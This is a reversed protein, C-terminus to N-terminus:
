KVKVVKVEYERGGYYKLHIERGGITTSGKFVVRYEVYTREGEPDDSNLLGNARLFLYKSFTIQIDHDAIYKQYQAWLMMDNKSGDIVSYPELVFGDKSPNYSGTLMRIKREIPNLGTKDYDGMNKIITSTAKLEDGHKRQKPNYGGDVVRKQLSQARHLGFLIEGIIKTQRKQTPEIAKKKGNEEQYITGLKKAEERLAALAEGMTAKGTYTMAEFAINEYNFKNLQGLVQTEGAYRLLTRLALIAGKATSTMRTNKATSSMFLAKMENSKMSYGEALLKAQKVALKIEGVGYEYMGSKQKKLTEYSEIVDKSLGKLLKLELAQHEQETIISSSEKTRRVDGKKSGRKKWEPKWEMGEYFRFQAM